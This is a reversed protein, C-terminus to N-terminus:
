VLEKFKVPILGYGDDFDCVDWTHGDDNYYYINGSKAKYYFCPNGKFGIHTADLHNAGYLADLDSLDEIQVKLDEAVQYIADGVAKCVKDAYPLTLSDHLTYESEIWWNILDIVAEKNM